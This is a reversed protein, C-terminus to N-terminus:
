IEKLQFSDLSIQGFIPCPNERCKKRRLIIKVADTRPSVSFSFGYQKWGTESPFVASRGLVKGSRANVVVIYPLGGTVLERTRVAFSLRYTRAPRILVTQSLIASGPKSKGDYNIRLAVKGTNPKTLDVHYSVSKEKKSIVWGFYKEEPLIEVEFDGNFLLSDASAKGLDKRQSEWILYSLYFNKSRILKQILTDKSGADLEDSVMFDKMRHTMIRHNIFYAALQTKAKISQPQVAKEIEVADGSFERHAMSFLESFYQDDASAARRLHNFARDPDNIRLFLRGLYRQPGAYNPALSIAKQYDKIAGDFDKLKYRCYGSRVWLLYDHPRLEAARTLDKLAARYDKKEIASLGREKYVEPNSPDFYVAQSFEAASETVKASNVTYKSLGHYYNASALIVLVTLYGLGALNKKM